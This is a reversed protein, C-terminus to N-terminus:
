QIVKREARLLDRKLLWVECGSRCVVIHCIPSQTHFEVKKLPTLKGNTLLYLNESYELDGWEFDVDLTYESGINKLGYRDLERFVELPHITRQVREIAKSNIKVAGSPNVDVYYIRNEGKSNLATFELHLSQVKEESVRLHLWILNATSNLMDTAIKEWLESLVVERTQVTIANQSSSQLLVVLLIVSVAAIPSIAKIQRKM